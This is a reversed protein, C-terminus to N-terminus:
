CTGSAAPASSAGSSSRRAKAAPETQEALSASTRSLPDSAVLDPGAGPAADGLSTLAPIGAGLVARASQDGAHHGARRRGADTVVPTAADTFRRLARDDDARLERLFGPLSSSDPRSSRRASPPPRPQSTRTTSSAPSHARERALPALLPRRRAGSEGADPEAERPHALVGNTERLAPNAREIIESLEDGRAALGTGLDNLILRFRDPYPERMINNILDLDVAKGNNEVPLLGPGRGARWRPHGRAGAAARDRARAAPDAPLRRVERGSAVAPPGPLLRGRPLGPLGSTSPMVVIAKGPDDSGDAHAAERPTVGVSDVHGVKAGAVRVEEGEGPLEM